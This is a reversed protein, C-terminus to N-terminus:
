FLTLTLLSQALLQAPARSLSSSKTTSPESFQRQLGPCGPPARFFASFGRFCGQVAAMVLVATFDLERRQQVVPIDVIVPSLQIQPVEVTAVTAAHDCLRSFRRHVADDPVDIVKNSTRCSRSWQLKRCESVLMQQVVPM